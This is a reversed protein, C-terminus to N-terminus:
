RDKAKENTYRANHGILVWAELAQDIVSDSALFVVGIEPHTGELTKYNHAFRTIEIGEKLFLHRVYDRHDRFTVRVLPGLDVERIRVMKAPYKTKLDQFARYAGSDFRTNM